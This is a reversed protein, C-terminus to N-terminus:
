SRLRINATVAVPSLLLGKSALIIFSLKACHMASTFCNLSTGTKISINTEILARHSFTIPHKGINIVESVLEQKKKTFTEIETIQKLISGIKDECYDKLMDAKSFM